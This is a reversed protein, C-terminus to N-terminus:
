CIVMERRLESEDSGKRERKKRQLLLYEAPIILHAWSGASVTSGSELGVCHTAGLPPAGGIEQVPLSPALHSGWNERFSTVWWWLPFIASLTLWSAGEWGTWPLPLLLAQPSGPIDVTIDRGMNLASLWVSFSLYGIVSSLFFFFPTCIFKDGFCFNSDCIYFVLMAVVPPLAPALIFQSVSISMCASCIYLLYSVLVVNYRM